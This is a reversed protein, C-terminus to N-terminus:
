GQGQSVQLRLPVLHALLEPVQRVPHLHLLLHQLLQEGAALALLLALGALVLRIQPLDYARALGLGLGLGLGPGPELGSGLEIVQPLDYAGRPILEVPTAGGDILVGELCNEVLHPPDLGSGLGSGLGLGLSLGVGLSLGM